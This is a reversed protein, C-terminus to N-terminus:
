AGAPIRQVFVALLATLLLFVVALVAAWRAVIHRLGVVTPRAFEGAVRYALPSLAGSPVADQNELDTLADRLHRALSASDRSFRGKFGLSLCLAYVWRARHFDPRLAELRNFFQNGGDHAGFRTLQLQQGMWDNQRDRDAMVIEDAWACLAFSADAIEDSHLSASEPAREFDDLLRNLEAALEGASSRAGSPAEHFLMVTAIFPRALEALVRNSM